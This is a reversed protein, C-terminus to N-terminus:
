AFIEKDYRLPSLKDEALGNGYLEVSRRMTAIALAM